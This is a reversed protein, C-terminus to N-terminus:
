PNQGEFKVPRNTLFLLLKIGQTRTQFGFLERINEQHVKPLELFLNVIENLLLHRETRQTNAM